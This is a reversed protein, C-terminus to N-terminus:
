YHQTTTNLVTTSYYHQTTTNLLLTQITNLLLISYYYRTTTDLLLISYCYRTATDLLLISYYYRTTADDCRQCMATTGREAGTKGQLSPNGRAAASAVSQRLLQDKLKGVNGTKYRRAVHFLTTSSMSCCPFCPISCCPVVVTLDYDGHFDFTDLIM